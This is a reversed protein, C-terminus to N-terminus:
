PGITCPTLRVEAEQCSEQPLPSWLMWLLLLAESHLHLHVLGAQCRLDDGMPLQSFAHNAELEPRSPSISCRLYHCRMGNRASGMCPAAVVWLCFMVLDGPSRKIVGRHSPLIRRLCSISHFAIFHEEWASLAMSSAMRWNRCCSISRPAMLRPVPLGKHMCGGASTRQRQQGFLRGFGHAEAAAAERCGGLRWSLLDSSLRRPASRVWQIRAIRLPM